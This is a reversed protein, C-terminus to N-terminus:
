MNVQMHYQVQPFNLPLHLSSTVSILQLNTENLWNWSYKILVEFYSNQICHSVQGMSSIVLTIKLKNEWSHIVWRCFSDYIAGTQDLSYSYNGRPGLKTLYPIPNKRSSTKVINRNQKEGENNIPVSWKHVLSNETYNKEQKPIPTKRVGGTLIM